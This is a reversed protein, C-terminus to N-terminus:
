EGMAEKLADELDNYQAVAVASIKTVGAIEKMVAGVNVGANKAKAALARLGGLSLRPAVDSSYDEEEDEDEEVEEAEMEKKRKLYDAKSIFELDEDSPIKEGKKIIGLCGDCTNYYYMVKTATKLDEDELDALADRMEKIASGWDKPEIASYKKNKPVYQYLISEYIKLDADRLQQAVKALDQFMTYDEYSEEKGADNGNVEVSSQTHQTMATVGGGFADALKNIAALLKSDASLLVKVEM